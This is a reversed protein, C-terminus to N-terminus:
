QIVLITLAICFIPSLEVISLITVQPLFSTAASVMSTLFSIFAEAVASGQGQWGVKMLLWSSYYFMSYCRVHCLSYWFNCLAIRVNVFEEVQQTGSSRGLEGVRHELQQM